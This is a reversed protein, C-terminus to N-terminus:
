GASAAWDASTRAARSRANPSVTAGTTRAHNAVEAETWEADASCQQCLLRSQVRYGTSGSRLLARCDACRSDWSLRYGIM